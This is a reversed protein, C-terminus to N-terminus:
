NVQDGDNRRAFRCHFGDIWIDLLEYCLWLFAGFAVIFASLLPRATLEIIASWVMGPRTLLDWSNFRLILGLYVGLSVTAFFPFAWLRLALGGKVVAREVPRIALAFMLMGFSSYLFYFLSLSILEILYASDVRARMFLNRGDVTVLFHRWETLLYCTNPLFVFWVAALVTSVSYRLAATAKSRYVANIAYGAAVPIIALM